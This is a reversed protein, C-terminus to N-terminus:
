QEEPEESPKAFPPMEYHSFLRRLADKIVEARNVYLGGEVLRNLCELYPKTLVVSVSKKVVDESLEFVM